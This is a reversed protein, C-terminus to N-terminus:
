YTVPKLDLDIVVNTIISRWLQLEANSRIGDRMEDKGRPFSTREQRLLIKAFDDQPGSLIGQALDARIM